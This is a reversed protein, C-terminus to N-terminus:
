QDIEGQDSLFLGGIEGRYESATSDFKNRAESASFRFGVEFIDKGVRM